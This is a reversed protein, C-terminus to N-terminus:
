PKDEPEKRFSYEHDFGKIDQMVEDPVDPMPMPLTRLVGGVYMEIEQYAMYPKMVRYFEWTRLMANIVLKKKPYDMVWIPTNHEQFLPPYKPLHREVEFERAIDVRRARLNGRYKHGYWGSKSHYRDIEAENCKSAVFKDVEDISYLIADARKHTYSGPDYLLLSALAVPYVKGCFGIAAFHFDRGHTSRGPIEIERTERVYVITPDYGLGQTVDYYDKWKSIIRM